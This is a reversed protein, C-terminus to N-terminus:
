RCSARGIQEANYAYVFETIVEPHMLHQRLGKIALAEIDDLYVRRGNGCSGSERHTSCQLRLGKADSGISAMGGGCSGCRILGSFARPRMGSMRSVPYSAGLLEGRCGTQERHDAAPAHTPGATRCSRPPWRSM